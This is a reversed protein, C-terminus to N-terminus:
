WITRVVNASALRADKTILTASQLLATAVIMRDAPDGPVDPGLHAAKAAVAPTLPMLEVRPQDLAEELWRLLPRDLRVRDRAVLTAVEMCCIAPVGIHRAREIERKAGRGLEGPASIWWLWAHTDLVIM